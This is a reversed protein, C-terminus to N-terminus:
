RMEGSHDSYEDRDANTYVPHALTHAARSTNIRDHSLVPCPHVRPQRICASTSSSNTIRVRVSRVRPLRSFADTISHHANGHTDHM